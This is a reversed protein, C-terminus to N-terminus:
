VKESVKVSLVEAQLVHPLSKPASNSSLGIMANFEDNSQTGNALQLFKDEGAAEIAVGALEQQISSKLEAEKRIGRIEQLLLDSHDESIGNILRAAAEEQRAAEISAIAEGKEDRIAKLERLKTSILNKNQAVKGSVTKLDAEVRNREEKLRSLETTIKQSENAAERYEPDSQISETDGNHKSVIRKGLIIAGELRKNQKDISTSLERLREKKRSEVELLQTTASTLDDVHKAKANAADDYSVAIVSTKSMFFKRVGSFLSGVWYGFARMAKWM